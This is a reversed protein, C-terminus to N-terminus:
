PLPVAIGFSIPIGFIKVTFLPKLVSRSAGVLGGRGLSGQTVLWEYELRGMDSTWWARRTEATLSSGPPVLDNLSIRMPALLVAVLAASDAHTRSEEPVQAPMDALGLGWGSPAAGAELSLALRRDSPARFPDSGLGFEGAGAGQTVAMAPLLAVLGVVRRLLVSGRAM